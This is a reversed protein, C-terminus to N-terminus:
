RFHQPERLIIICEFVSIIIIINYYFFFYNPNKKSVFLCFISMSILPLFFTCQTMTYCFCNLPPMGVTHPINYTVSIYNIEKQGAQIEPPPLFGTVGRYRRWKLMIVM